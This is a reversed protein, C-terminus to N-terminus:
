NLCSKLKDKSTQAVVTWRGDEKKLKGTVDYFPTVRTVHEIEQDVTYTYNETCDRITANDGSISVKTVNDKAWGAVRYHKAKLKATYDLVEARAKGRAVALFQDTPKYVYYTDAAGQWFSMWAAVAAKEDSTKAVSSELYALHM